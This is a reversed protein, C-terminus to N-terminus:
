LVMFTCLLHYLPHIFTKNMQAADEKNMVRVVKDLRLKLADREGKHHTRHAGTPRWTGRYWRTIYDNDGSKLYSRYQPRWQSGRTHKHSRTDAALARMLTRGRPSKQKNITVKCRVLAVWRRRPSKKSTQMSSLRPTFATFAHKHNEGEDEFFLVVTQSWSVVSSASSFGM